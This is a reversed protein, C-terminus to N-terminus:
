VTLLDVAFGRLVVLICCLFLKSQRPVMGVIGMRSGRWGVPQRQRLLLSLPFNWLKMWSWRFIGYVTFWGACNDRGGSWLVNRTRSHLALWTIIIDKHDWALVGRMLWSIKCKDSSPSHRLDRSLFGAPVRPVDSLRGISLGWCWLHVFSKLHQACAACWSM